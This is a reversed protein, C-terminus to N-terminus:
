ALRTELEARMRIVEDLAADQTRHYFCADNFRPLCEIGCYRELIPGAYFAHPYTPGQLIYLEEVLGEKTTFREKLLSKWASM